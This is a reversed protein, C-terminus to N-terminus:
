KKRLLWDIADIEQTLRIVHTHYKTHSEKIANKLQTLDEVLEPTMALPLTPPNCLWGYIKEYPEKRMIAKEVVLRFLAHPSTFSLPKPKGFGAWAKSMEADTPLYGNDLLYTTISDSELLMANYYPAGQQMM